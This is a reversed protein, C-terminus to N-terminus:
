FFFNEHKKRVKFMTLINLTKLTAIGEKGGGGGMRRQLRVKNREM